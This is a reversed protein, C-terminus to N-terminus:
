MRREQVRRSYFTNVDRQAKAILETLHVPYKGSPFDRPDYVYLVVQPACARCEWINARVLECLLCYFRFDVYKVYGALKWFLKSKVVLGLLM